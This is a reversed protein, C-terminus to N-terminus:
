TFKNYCMLRDIFIYFLLNDELKNVGQRWKQNQDFQGPPGLLRGSKLDQM